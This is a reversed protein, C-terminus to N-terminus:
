VLADRGEVDFQRLVLAAPEIETLLGSLSRAHAPGRENASAGPLPNSRSRNGTRAPRPATLTGGDDDDGVTVGVTGDAAKWIGATYISSPEGVAPDGISPVACSDAEARATLWPERQHIGDVIEAVTGAGSAAFLAIQAYIRAEPLDFMLTACGAVGAQAAHAELVGPKALDDADKGAQMDGQKFKADIELLRARLDAVEEGWARAASDAPLANLRRMLEGVEVPLPLSELMLGEERFMATVSKEILEYMDPNEGGERLAKAFRARSREERGRVAEVEAPVVESMRAACWEDISRVAQSSAGSTGAPAAGDGSSGCAALVFCFGVLM